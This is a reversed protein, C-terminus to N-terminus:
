EHFPKKLKKINDFASANSIKSSLGSSVTPGDEVNAADSYKNQDQLHILNNEIINQNIQFKNIKSNASNPTNTVV